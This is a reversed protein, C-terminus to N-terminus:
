GYNSLRVAKGSQVEARTWYVLVCRCRARCETAGGPRRQLQSLPQFGAASERICTACTVEDGVAVWEVFWETGDPSAGPDDEVEDGAPSREQMGRAMTENALEVLRGSWNAIRHKHRAWARQAAALLAVEDLAGDGNDARLEMAARRLTPDSTGRVSAALLTILDQQIDSLIGGSETLYAMAQRHYHEAYEVWGESLDSSGTYHVAADRGVRAAGLYHNRTTETWDSRLRDITRTIDGALRAVEERSLDGDSIHARIAALVDMEARRYLPEVERSYDMIVRALQSLRLTRYGVFMGDDQWESPMHDSRQQCSRHPESHHCGVSRVVRGVRRRLARWQSRGKIPRGAAGARSPRSPRAAQAEGPAEDAADPESADTAGDDVEGDPDKADGGVPGALLDALPTYTNGTKVLAVNGGDIPLRGRKWRMENITIAGRDFDSADARSEAELEEATKSHDYDFSFQVLQAIDTGLILPLIRINIQQEIMELIPRILGSEEANMQVEATARPTAETDGQSVPKVGFARWIVRRTDRVIQAMDLDKPTHRFEVWRAEVGGPEPSTVVRLRTDAGPAERLSEMARDRDKGELGALLLVGPWLESSDYSERIHKSSNILAMVENVISELIPTGGVYQTSPFLNFYVVKERSLVIERTGSVQRYDVIRGHRDVRPEIDGGPLAVLERLEGRRSFVNESAWVDLVLLDKVLKSVWTQWPEGDENPAALFRRATEAAELAQAHLTSGEVLDEIPEVLTDWTSIKRVISDVSSRVDANRLYLLWLVDNPLLRHTGHSGSRLAGSIETHGPFYGVRERTQLVQHFRGYTPVTSRVPVLTPGVHVRM